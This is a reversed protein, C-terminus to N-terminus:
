TKGPMQIDLLLLDPNEKEIIDLAEDVVGSEAVVEIDSINELLSKIEQRALREDDIIMARIM